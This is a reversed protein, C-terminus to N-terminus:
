DDKVWKLRDVNSLHHCAGQKDMVFIESGLSGGNVPLNAAKSIVENLRVYGDPFDKSNHEVVGFFIEDLFSNFEEPQTNDRAFTKLTETHYFLTRQRKLHDELDPWSCLDTLCKIDKKKHDCYAALLHKLYNSEHEQPIDPPHKAPPRKQLNGGFRAQHWPTSAHLEILDLCVKKDFINFDFQQVYELFEGELLVEKTTTIKNKINKDWNEITKKKFLSPDNLYTLLTTGINKPAAFYYKRPTAYDKKYTYYLIKGVESWIDSPALPAIYHKCQYNDWIGNIKQNDAFGAIDIGKDGSGAYKSITLYDDKLAWVCEEVFDEWDKDSFLQVLKQKPYPLASGVGMKQTPGKPVLESFDNTNM